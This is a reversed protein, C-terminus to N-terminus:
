GRRWCPMAQLQAVCRATDLCVADYSFRLVPLGTAARDTRRLRDYVFAARDSRFAFGDLEVALHLSEGAILYGLRYIREHVRVPHQSHVHAVCGRQVAATLVWRLFAGGLCSASPVLLELGASM